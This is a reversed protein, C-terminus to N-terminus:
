QFLSVAITLLYCINIYWFVIKSFIRKKNSIKEDRSLLFLLIQLPLFVVVLGIANGIWSEVKVGQESLYIIVIWEVILVIRLIKYQNKMIVKGMRDRLCIM